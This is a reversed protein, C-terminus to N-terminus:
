KNNIREYKASDAWNKINRTVPQVKNREQTIIYKALVQSLNRETVVEKIATMENFLDMRNLVIFGILWNKINDTKIYDSSVFVIDKEITDNSNEQCYKINLTFWPEDLFVPVSLSTDIEFKDVSLTIISDHSFYKNFEEM